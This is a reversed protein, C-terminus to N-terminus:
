KSNAQYSVKSAWQKTDFSSWTLDAKLWKADRSVSGSKPLLGFRQGLTARAVNRAEFFERLPNSSDIRYSSM